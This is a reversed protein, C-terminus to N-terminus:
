GFTFFKTHGRGGTRFWINISAILTLFHFKGVGWLVLLSIMAPFPLIRVLHISVMQNYYNSFLLRQGRKKKSAYDPKTYFVLLKQIYM